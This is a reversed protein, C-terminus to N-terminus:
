AKSQRAVESENIEYWFAEKTVLRAGILDLRELPWSHLEDKNPEEKTRIATTFGYKKINELIVSWKFKPKPKVETSKRYGITGFAVEVSKKKSFLKSQNREAFATLGNELEKLRLQHPAALQDASAKVHDIAENMDIDIESLRRKVSAIEALADNAETLDKIPQITVPKTRKTTM